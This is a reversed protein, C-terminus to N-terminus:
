AAEKRMCGMAILQEKAQNFDKVFQDLAESLREIYPEDRETRILSPPMEPHYSFWDVWKRGTILLQGQVQPYYKKDIVGSRLNGVHTWPAPCKIEVLGEDGVLRDPSCGITKEDNTIFGVPVTDMSVTMEYLAVADDELQAGREMWYNMPIERQEGTLWEALCEDIYGSAQKSLDGKPTIIKDFCSTTPVGLRLAYWEPSRQIIDHIIM